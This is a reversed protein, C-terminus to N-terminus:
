FRRKNKGKIQGSEKSVSCEYAQQQSSRDEGGALGRNPPHPSGCHLEDSRLLGSQPTSRKIGRLKSPPAKDNHCALRCAAEFM